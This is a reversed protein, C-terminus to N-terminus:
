APTPVSPLQNTLVVEASDEFGIGIRDNRRLFVKVETAATLPFGSEAAVREALVRHLEVQDIVVRVTRCHTESDRIQM